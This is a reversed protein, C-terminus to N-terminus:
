LSGFECTGALTGLATTYPDISENAEQSRNNLNNREYIVNVRGICCNHRLESVKDTNERPADSSFPLGTHIGLADPGICTIFTAVCLASPQKGLGTDIEYAKWIQVWKKWNAALNGKTDFKQPLSVNAIFRSQPPSVVAPAAAEDPM